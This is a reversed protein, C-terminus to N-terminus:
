EKRKRIKKAPVGGYLWGKELKGTAIAGAALIVNDEITTGPLIVCNSTIWVNNGINIPEFSISSGPENKKTNCEPHTVTIFKNEFGVLCHNGIKIGGECSFLNKKNIFCNDGIKISKTKTFRQGKCLRSRKGIKFIGRWLITRLPTLITFDPLFFDILSFFNIIFEEKTANLIYIIKKM